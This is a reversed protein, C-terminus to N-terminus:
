LSKSRIYDGVPDYGTNVDFFDVRLRRFEVMQEDSLHTGLEGELGRRSELIHALYTDDTGPVRDSILKGIFRGFTEQIDGGQALDDALDDLLSGGDLRTTKLLAYMEDKARDFIQKAREQQTEDLSLEETLEDIPAKWEGQGNRERGALRDIKESMREEVRRAVDDALSEADESGPAMGTLGGAEEAVETASAESAARQAGTAVRRELAGIRRDLSQRMDRLDGRLGEVAAVVDADSSRAASPAPQQQSGQSLAVYSTVGLTLVLLGIMAANQSM